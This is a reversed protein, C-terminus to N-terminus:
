NDLSNGTGFYEFSDGQQSPRLAPTSEYLDLETTHLLGPRVQLHLFFYIVLLPLTFGVFLIKNVWVGKM